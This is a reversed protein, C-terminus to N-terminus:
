HSFYGAEKEFNNEDYNPEIGYLLESTIFNFDTYFNKTYFKVFKSKKSLSKIPKNLFANFGSQQEYQYTHILEHATTGPTSTEKLYIFNTLSGGNLFKEGAKFIRPVKFVPTGLKMTKSFDFKFRDLEKITFFLSFPMIRYRFKFKDKTYIDLRNFGINLHWQVWFDQNSAANEIISNGAANVIKSPWVFAYNGTKSFERLMRKSEFVVYGGLAGQVFGKLLVKGLKEEPEKNIVAGAGGIISSFGINILAFDLDSDQAQSPKGISFFLITLIVLIYKNSFGSGVLGRTKNIIKTTTNNM